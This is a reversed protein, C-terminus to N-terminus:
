PKLKDIFEGLPHGQILLDVEQPSRGLLLDRVFRWFQM